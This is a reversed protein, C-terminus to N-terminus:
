KEANIRILVTLSTDPPPLLKENPIWLDDNERGPRPNNILAAPDLIVSVISGDRQAAFSGEGV